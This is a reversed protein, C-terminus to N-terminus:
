RRPKRPNSGSQSHSSRARRRKLTVYSLISVVAIVGATVIVNAWDQQKEVRSSPSAPLAPVPPPAAVEAPAIVGGDDSIFQFEGTYRLLAADMTPSVDHQPTRESTVAVLRKAVQLATALTVTRPLPDGHMFDALPHERRLDGFKPDNAPKTPHDYYRLQNPVYDAGFYLLTKASAYMGTPCNIKGAGLAQFGFEIIKIEENRAFFFLTRFIQGDPRGAQEISEGVSVLAPAIDATIGDCLPRFLHADDESDDSILRDLSRSLDFLGGVRGTIPDDVLTTKGTSAWVNRARPSSHRIKVRDDQAFGPSSLRKDAVLVLGEQSRVAVILTAHSQVVVLLTCTLAILILWVKL